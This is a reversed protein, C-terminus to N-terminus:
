WVRDVMENHMWLPGSAPFTPGPENEFCSESAGKPCYSSHHSQFGGVFKQFAKDDAMYCAIAADIADPTFTANTDLYLQPFFNGASTFNVNPQLTFNRRRGHSVPYIWPKALGQPMATQGSEPTLFM